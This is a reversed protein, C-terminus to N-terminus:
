RHGFIKAAAARLLRKLHVAFTAAALFAVGLFSAVLSTVPNKSVWAALFWIGALVPGGLLMVVILTRLSFRM